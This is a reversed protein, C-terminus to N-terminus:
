NRDIENSVNRLNTRATGTRSQYGKPRFRGQSSYSRRAKIALEM